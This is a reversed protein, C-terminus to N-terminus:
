CVELDVVVTNSCKLYIFNSDSKQSNWVTSEGYINVIKWGIPLRNLKHSINNTIGVTLSINTLIQSDLQSKKVIPTLANEINIQIRNLESDDTIIRDFSKFAM